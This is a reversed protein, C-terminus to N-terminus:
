AVNLTVTATNSFSAGDFAEYTFADTGSFGGNPTYTFAGNPGLVLTGNAPGAVLVASLDDGDADTDNALVGGGAAVVLPTGAEAGYADATAVPAQNVASVTITVTA